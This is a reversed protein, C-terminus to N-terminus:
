LLWSALMEISVALDNFIMKGFILRTEDFLPRQRMPAFQLIIPLRARELVIILSAFIL